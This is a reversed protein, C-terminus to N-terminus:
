NKQCSICKSKNISTKNKKLEGELEKKKDKKEELEKKKNGKKEELEKIKNEKKEELEKIQKILNVSLQIQKVLRITQIMVEKQMVQILKLLNVVLNNKQYRKDKKKLFLIEAKTTKNM